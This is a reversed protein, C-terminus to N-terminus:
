WNRKRAMLPYRVDLIDPRSDFINDVTRASAVCPFIDKVEKTYNLLSMKDLYQKQLVHYKRNRPRFCSM